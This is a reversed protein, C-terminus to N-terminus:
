RPRTLIFLILAVALAVALWTLATDFAALFPNM